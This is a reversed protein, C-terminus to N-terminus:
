RSSFRGKQWAEGSGNSGLRRVPYRSELSLWGLLLGKEKERGSKQPSCTKPSEGVTSKPEVGCLFIEDNLRRPEGRTYRRGGNQHDIDTPPSLGM